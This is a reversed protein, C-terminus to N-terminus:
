AFAPTVGPQARPRDGWVAPLVRDLDRPQDRAGGPLLLLAPLLRQAPGGQARGHHPERRRQGGGRGGERQPEHLEPPVAPGPGGHGPGRGPDFRHGDEPM